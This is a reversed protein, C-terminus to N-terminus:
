RTEKTLSFCTSCVDPRPHTDHGKVSCRRRTTETHPRPTENPGCGPHTTYGDVLAADPLPLGCATCPSQGNDEPSTGNASQRGSTGRDGSTGSQNRSDTLRSTGPEGTYSGSGTLRDERETELDVPEWSDETERFPKISTHLTSGRPGPEARIYGEAILADVALRLHERKGTVATCIGNFSLPERCQELAQSTKQMFGTPRFPQTESTAHEVAELRMNTGPSVHLEAVRQKTSYNGLRDKTCRLVAHGTTKRDFPKVLHQMYQVGSIAARKRQSGIPWLGSEDQNKVVHDLVVVAPGPENDYTINALRRPVRLFWAAVEEDANPNAGDLALAEGTSDVVVLVPRLDTILEVLQQLDAPTPKATPNFYAFRTLLADPNVRLGLLRDVIGIQDDEHDIYVVADGQALHIAASHLVTWTKGAVPEGAIGNVKGRYFLASGGSIPGVTLAPRSLTGDAFAALTPALDVRAWSGQASHADLPANTLAAAAAQLLSERDASSSYALQQIRTATDILRRRTASDAVIQAYHRSNSAVSVEAIADSLYLHGGTSQLDGTRTLEAVVTIADVVSDRGVLREIAQWITEHKPEYFDAATIVARVEALASASQLAGGIVAKEAESDHPPTRTDIVPELHRQATM